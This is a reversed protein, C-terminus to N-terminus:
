PPELFFYKLRRPPVYFCFVGDGTFVSCDRFWRVATIITQWLLSPGAMLVGWGDLWFVHVFGPSCHYILFSYVVVEQKHEIHSLREEAVLPVDM